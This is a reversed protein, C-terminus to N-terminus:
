GHLSTIALAVLAISALAAVPVWSSVAHARDTAGTTQNELRAVRLTGASDRRGWASVQDGPAIPVADPERAYRCHVEGNPTVVRFATHITPRARRGLLYGLAGGAGAAALPNVRRRHRRRSGGFGFTSRTADAAAAGIARHLIRVAAIVALAFVGPLLACATALASWWPRDGRAAPTPGISSVRGAVPVSAAAAPRSPRSPLM